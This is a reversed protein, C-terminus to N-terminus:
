AKALERLLARNLRMGALLNEVPFNENPSHARCDPLALGLLLTEVGLVKKFTQVIPISGGERILAPKSGFTTVLARQAADGDKSHPDVLYWDGSHGRSIEMEVGPPCNKRLHAEVQDLIKAPDQKPVLRFTLKAFAKSPLVTKTGQGQYGGGIGNVEATPRATTREMSTFGKEGFLSKVGTLKKLADDTMPLDKWADREWDALPAVDDYFHEVQIHGNADHLTAVLRAIATAPNAVAGGHMGSHLDM